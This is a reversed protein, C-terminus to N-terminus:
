LSMWNKDACAPYLRMSEAEKCRRTYGIGNDCCFYWYAGISPAIAAGVLALDVEYTQLLSAAVSNVFYTWSQIALGM